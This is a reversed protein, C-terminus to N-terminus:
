GCLLVVHGGALSHHCTQMPSEDADVTVMSVKAELKDIAGQNRCLTCEQAADVLHVRHAREFRPYGEACRAHHEVRM